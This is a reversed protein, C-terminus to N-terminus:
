SFSNVHELCRIWNANLVAEGHYVKWGVTGRQKLPDFGTEGLDYMILEVPKKDQGTLNEGEPGAGDIQLNPMQGMFGAVGHSEAGIFLMTYVDETSNQGADVYIRSNSSIFLECDLITGLLGNRMSEPASRSIFTSFTPDIFFAELTYPHAICKFMGDIKRANAALLEVYNQIWDVFAIKDNMVDLTARTTAAGSYDATANATLTNRVITDVTLGAQDGLLGSMTAIVPDFSTLDHRDTFAMWSGYASPTITVTTPNAVTTEAPTTGEGLATTAASLQAYRRMSYINYGKYEAIEAWRGHILRPQARTLLRKENLTIIANSLDTTNFSAM